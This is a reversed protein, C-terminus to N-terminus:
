KAGKAANRLAMRESFTLPKTVIAEEKAEVVPAVPEFALANLEAELMAAYLGSDNARKRLKSVTSLLESYAVTADSELDDSILRTGAADLLKQITAETTYSILQKIYPKAKSIFDKPLFQAVELWAEYAEKDYKKMQSNPALEFTAEATAKPTPVEELITYVKEVSACLSIYRSFTIEDLSGDLTLKPYCRKTTLMKDRIFRLFSLIQGGTLRAEIARVVILSTAKLTIKEISNLAGLILASSQLPSLSLWYDEPLQLISLANMAMPHYAAGVAGPFPPLDNPVILGTIPCVITLAESSQKAFYSAIDPLSSTKFRGFRITQQM